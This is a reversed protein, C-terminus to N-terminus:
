GGTSANDKKARLPYMKSLLNHGSIMHLVVAGIHMFLFLPILEEGVEHMETVASEDGSDFAFMITGTVAMWAFVVLGFAQVLGAIGRHDAREPMRFQVLDKVDERITIWYSKNCPFWSSFRYEKEGLIGYAFRSLVFILLTLGLYAHLLYGSSDPHEALDGTLYGTIGFAALGVHTWRIWVPPCLQKGNM